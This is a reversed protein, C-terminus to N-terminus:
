ANEEGYFNVEEITYNTLDLESANKHALEETAFVGIVDVEEMLVFVKM